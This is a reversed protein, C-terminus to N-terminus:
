LLRQLLLAEGMAPDLAYPVYGCGAYLARAAHNNRLVELTLKCCGRQRAVVQAAQLLARAIGRRQWDRHVALDHVNLLPAAAFTSFGEFANLLGVAQPSGSPHAEAAGAPGAELWALLVVSGPRKALREPLAARVAATLPQGGGADSCAYHDLLALWAACQAADSWNLPAIHPAASPLAAVPRVPSSPPIAPHTMDCAPLHLSPSLFHVM